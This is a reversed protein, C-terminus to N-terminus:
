GLHLIFKIVLRVRGSRGDDESEDNRVASRSRFSKSKFNERYRKSEKGLNLSGGRVIKSEKVQLSNTNANSEKFYKEKRMIPQCESDSLAGTDEGLKVSRQLFRRARSMKKSATTSSGGSSDQSTESCISSSDDGSKSEKLKAHNNSSNHHTYHHNTFFHLPSSRSSHSKQYTKPTTLVISSSKQKSYHLPSLHNPSNNAGLKNSDLSSYTNKMDGYYQAPCKIPSRPPMVSPSPMPSSPTSNTAIDICKLDCMKQNM